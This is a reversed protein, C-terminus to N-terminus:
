EQLKIAIENESKFNQSIQKFNLFQYYILHLESFHLNFKMQIIKLLDKCYGQGFETKHMITKYFIEM